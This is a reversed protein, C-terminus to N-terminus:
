ERMPFYYEGAKQDYMAENLMEDFKKLCDKCMVSRPLPHPFRQKTTRGCITYGRHKPTREEEISLGWEKNVIHAKKNRHRLIIYEEPLEDPDVINPINTYKDEM